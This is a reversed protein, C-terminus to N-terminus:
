PKFIVRPLHTKALSPEGPALAWVELFERFQETLHPISVGLYNPPYAALRCEAREFLERAGILNGKQFHVLAAALQILGQYFDREPGQTSRWLAELIEHAEFFKEERFLKFYRLYRPDNTM